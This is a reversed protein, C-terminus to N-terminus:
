KSKKHTELVDKRSQRRKMTGQVSKQRTLTSNPITTSIAYQLRAACFLLHCLTRTRSVSHRYKDVKQKTWCLLKAGM